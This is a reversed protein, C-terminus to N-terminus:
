KPSPKRSIRLMVPLLTVDAVLCLTVICATSLGLNRVLTFGSLALVSFGVAIAATTAVLAPLVRAFSASLMEEWRSESESREELSSILHVTDDVAIGLAMSGVCVTAADLPVGSWGMIGFAVAIPALNSVMAVAAVVPKRFVVLLVLAIAAAAIVLGRIQGEAIANEARAFEYMIGTTTVSYEPHGNEAWWTSAWEGLRVIEESSNNDLRLAIAASRRDPHIVEELQDIGDLLLLSQAIEAQTEPLLDSANEFLERQLVRLPDSFSLSKGVEPREQLASSLADVKALVEPDDVRISGPGGPEILVSVPTIGSLRARITEYDDRVESGFPFWTTIDTSVELQRVGFSAVFAAGLWVAIVTGGRRTATRTLARRLSRDTWRRALTEQPRANLLQLLSPALSIAAFTAVAVGFSGFTALERIADIPVTSMAAFGIVTTAGSLAVANAVLPAEGHRQMVVHMSYACGLALLMSPLVTTSLSLSVGLASMLGLSVVVSVAGVILPVLTAFVNRLALWLVATLLTITAPIFLALESRTKENVATRFVPVGTIRAGRSETIDRIEAVTRARDADVNEDLVVNIAFVKGDRSVLSDTAIRDALVTEILRTLGPGSPVGDALGADVRVAGDSSRILPVSALSDVRRVHDLSELESTLHVVAELAPPYWPTPAELAVVVFEDGGHRELRRLYNGWAPSGRDLFSGTSTDVQLAVLPITCVVSM